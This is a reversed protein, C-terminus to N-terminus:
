HHIQKVQFLFPKSKSRSVCFGSASFLHLSGYIPQGHITHASCNMTTYDSHSVLPREDLEPCGQLEFNAKRTMAFVDTYCYNPELPLTKHIAM